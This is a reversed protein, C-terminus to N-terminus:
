HSSEGFSEPLLGAFLAPPTQAAPRKDAPIQFQIFEARDMLWIQM